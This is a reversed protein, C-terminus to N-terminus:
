TMEPLKAVRTKAWKKIKTKLSNSIWDKRRLGASLLRYRDLLLGDVLNCNRTFDEDLFAFPTAFAKTPLSQARFDVIRTWIKLNPTHLKEDWNAGSACQFLFAPFGGRGDPIEHYCVLDLGAENASKSTWKEVNGTSESLWTSVINVVAALKKTQTRSWGTQRVTWGTYLTEVAEKTLEEFLQGQETYNQGFSNAWKPYWKLLSLLVCFSHATAEEWPKRRLKIRLSEFVYPSADGLMKQRKRLESWGNSVMQYAMEQKDYIQNHCLADVVEPESLGGSIFLVNGEIWDCFVDLDVNHATVSRGFGKTPITLM